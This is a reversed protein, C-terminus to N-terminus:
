QQPKSQSQAAEKNERDQDVQAQMADRDAIASDAKSQAKAADLKHKYVDQRVSDAAATQANVNPNDAPPTVMKSPNANADSQITDSDAAAQAFAPTTALVTLM